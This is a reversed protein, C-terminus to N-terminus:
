AVEDVVSRGSRTTTVFTREAEPYYPEECTVTRRSNEHPGPVLPSCQMDPKREGGNLMILKRGLRYRQQVTEDATPLWDVGSAAGSLEAQYRLLWLFASPTAQHTEM